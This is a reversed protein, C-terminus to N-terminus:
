EKYVHTRCKNLATEDSIDTVLLLLSICILFLVNFVQLVGAGGLSCDYSDCVLVQRLYFSFLCCWFSIYMSIQIGLWAGKRGNKIIFQIFVIGALGLSTLLCNFIAFTFAVTNGQLMGGSIDQDFSQCGAPSAVAAPTYYSAFGMGFERKTSSDVPVKV